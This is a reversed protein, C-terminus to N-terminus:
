LYNGTYHLYIFLLSISFYRIIVSKNYNITVFYNIDPTYAFILRPAWLEQNTFTFHILKCLRVLMSNQTDMGEKISLKLHILLAM